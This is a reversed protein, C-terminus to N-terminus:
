LFERPDTIEGKVASAAVTAPSALYILAEPSGMRGKFNRPSSAICVEKPLLVGEQGPCVSCTMGSVLAGAKLFTEVLGESAAQLHVERSPPAIVLRTRPDVHRARLIAAAARLDDMNGNGCSGIFAQDIRTGRVEAIPKVNGPSHPAAVLPELRSADVHITEAYSADPDSGIPSWGAVNWRKLFAETISDPAAIGNKAGMETSMNCLTIRGDIGLNEVTHGCFEMAKYNAFIPGKQGLISLGIDKATVFPRLEGTVECRITEPVRLWFKGMVAMMAAESPGFAAAFLGLAGCTPIHSDAAVILMGPRLLGNEWLLQDKIGGELPVLGQSRAFERTLRNVRAQDPTTPTPFHDVVFVVRDKRISKAGMKDLTRKFIPFQLEGMCILDVDCTIMEGPSVKDRGAARALIKETITMSM